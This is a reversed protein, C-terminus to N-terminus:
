LNTFNKWDSKISSLQTRIGVEASLVNCYIATIWISYSFETKVCFSSYMLLRPLYNYTNKTVISQKDYPIQSISDLLMDIFNWYDAVNFNM